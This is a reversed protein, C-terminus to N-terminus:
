AYPYMKNKINGLQELLDDHKREDTLLYNLLYQHIFSRSAAKATTGLEVTAKELEIHEELITGIDALEDPTLIVAKKELSDIIFQQVKRHMASDHAIIQFIQKVLPNKLEKMNGKISSISQDEIKQWKKMTTVLTKDLEKQSVRKKAM